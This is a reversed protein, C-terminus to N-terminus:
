PAAKKLAKRSLSLVVEHLAFAFISVLLIGNSAAFLNRFFGLALFFLHFSAPILFVILHKKYSLQNSFGRTNVAIVIVSLAILLILLNVGFAGEFSFLLILFVTLAATLALLPYLYPLWPKAFWRSSYRGLRLASSMLFVIVWWTILNGYPVGFWESNLPIGWNWMASTEGNLTYSDRIAIADMSLDILLALSADCFPRVWEVTKLTDSFRMVSFGIVAWGLAIVLQTDFVQLKFAGYSYFGNAVAIAELSFGYILFAFLELVLSENKTKHELGYTLCVIFLVLGMLEFLFYSLPEGFLM